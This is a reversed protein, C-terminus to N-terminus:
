ALKRLLFTSWFLLNRALRIAVVDGFMEGNLMPM